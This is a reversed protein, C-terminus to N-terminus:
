LKIVKRRHTTYDDSKKTKVRDNYSAMMEWHVELRKMDPKWNLARAEELTDPVNDLWRENVPVDKGAYDGKRPKRKAEYLLSIVSNPRLGFEYATEGLSHTDYYDLVSKVFQKRKKSAMSAELCLM